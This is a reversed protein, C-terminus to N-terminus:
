YNSYVIKCANLDRMLRSAKSWTGNNNINNYKNYIIYTNNYYMNKYLLKNYVIM